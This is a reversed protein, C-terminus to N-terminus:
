NKNYIDRLDNRVVPLPLIIDFLHIICSILIPYFNGTLDHIGFAKKGEKRKKGNKRRQIRQFVTGFIRFLVKNM